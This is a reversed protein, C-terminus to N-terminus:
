KPPLSRAFSIGAALWDRFAADDEMAESGVMVWGTMPRGTIDFERIGSQRLADQYRDPGVRVVMDDGLIGAAMNGDLLFGLGGFMRKEDLGPEERIVDRMREALGEDYAM